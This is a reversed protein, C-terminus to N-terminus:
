VGANESRVGNDRAMALGFMLGFGSVIAMIVTDSWGNQFGNRVAIAVIPLGALIGGLTTQWSRTLANKM